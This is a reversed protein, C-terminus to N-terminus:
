ARRDSVGELFNSPKAAVRGAKKKVILSQETTQVFSRTRQVFSGTTQVFSVTAHILARCFRNKEATRPKFLAGRPSTRFLAGTTQSLARRTNLLSKFIALAVFPKIWNNHILFRSCVESQHNLSQLSQIFTLVFYFRFDHKEFSCPVRCHMHWKPFGCFFTRKKTARGGLGKLGGGRPKTAM